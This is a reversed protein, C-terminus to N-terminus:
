EAPADKDAPAADKDAPAGDTPADKDAPAAAAPDDKKPPKEAPKGCGLAFMSVSVLVLLMGLRKM